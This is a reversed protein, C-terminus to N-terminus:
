RGSVVVKKFSDSNNNTQLRFYYVGGSLRSADVNLTHSGANFEANAIEMVDEGLINLLTLKVQGKSPLTFQVTVNNKAPNPYVSIAVNQLAISPIGTLNVYNTDFMGQSLNYYTGSASKELRISRVMYYNKGNNPSNDSYNLTTIISPSIRNYIETTTDLRYMYYGLISDTSSAATWTLDINGHNTTSNLNGPPAVTHLRLSPDGMFGMNGYTGLWPYTPNTLYLTNHSNISLKACYGVTEGLGMHHFDWYPRGGWCDTLTWGKSALPARLFNDQSDWDGFYSGFLMTFVSQVSDAAFDTTAGIGGASTYTGGGCGYSFLYSQSTMASFYGPDNESVNSANFLAAFNRWGDSAFYELNYSGFNDCVLAQRQPIIIKFKYMLDKNIYRKLLQTETSPFSPMDSLDVRGVALEVLDAGMDTLANQDFKGDGPINQNQTRSATIDNVTNDTWASDVDAYYDDCPWAGLHDPHGDPNIDGSYPVPVHGFVFVSKVNAPDAYYIKQIIRKVLPVPMNRGINKRIVTWGDGILSMQLHWLEDHLSDIMTSDVLFIMKGRAETVPVEIGAYVYTVATDSGIEYIKYEYDTGVSVTTDIYKTATPSLTAKVAGWTTAAKAKRFVTVTAAGKITDWSFTISPKSKQVTTTLQITQNVPSQSYAGNSLILSLLLISIGTNKKMFPLYSHQQKVQVCIYHM